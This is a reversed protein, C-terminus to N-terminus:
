GLRTLDVTVDLGAAPGGHFIGKLPSVDTYDRGRAVVVHREGVDSGNTPDFPVWRGAWAEVWAHSQGRHSGGVDASPEPHLYGSTYRAPVGMSRLLALTLHVFDQCVGAGIQLAETASTRVSTTGREYRLRGRVWEAAGRSAYLPSIERALSEAVEIMEDSMPARVTPALLEGFRDRVEASGLEEWSLDSAGNAAPSTEVVSTATVALETHPVHVDFADVITGWYDHYRVPRVAPSVRVAAELVRQRDTTLPTMRAENYSSRVERRYRHVTRHEIGIRWTM